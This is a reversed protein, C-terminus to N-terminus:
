VADFVVDRADSDHQMLGVHGRRGSHALLEVRSQSALKLDDRPHLVIALEQAGQHHFFVHHEVQQEEDHDYRGESDHAREDGEHDLLGALNTHELRQPGRRGLHGQHEQRLTQHDTHDTHDAAERQAPGPDSEAIVEEVEHVLGEVEVEKGRLEVLEPLQGGPDHRGIYHDNASSRQHDAQQGADNGRHTGGPKM